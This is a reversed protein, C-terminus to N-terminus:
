PALHAAAPALAAWENGTRPDLLTRHDDKYVRGTRHLQLLARQLPMSQYSEPWLRRLVTRAAPAHRASMAPFIHHEVHYGFGLTLWELWRPLTVSLSNILPDNHPTLPSLSHNTLIFSMVISNVVLLPLGFLWLFQRLGVQSALAIWFSVGLATELWARRHEPGSLYGYRRAYILVQTSHVSFGLLLPLVGTWRGGGVAFAIVVRLKRNSQYHALTPFADPDQEPHNTHGHHVRNHWAIWLRPSLVFPLFCLWGVAYRLPQSHVVAGHLAEHALFTLGAFSLGICLSLLPIFPWAVGHAVIAISALTIFALHVPLWFLRTRAPAFASSPLLSRLERAYSPTSRLVHWRLIAAGARAAPSPHYRASAVNCLAGVHSM